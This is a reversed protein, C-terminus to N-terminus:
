EEVTASREQQRKTTQASSKHKETLNYKRPKESVDLANVRNKIASPGSEEGGEAHTEKPSRRNPSVSKKM